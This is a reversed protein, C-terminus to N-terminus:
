RFDKGSQIDKYVIDFCTDGVIGPKQESDFLAISVTSIEEIPRSYVIRRSTPKKSKPRPLVKEKKPNYEQIGNKIKAKTKFNKVLLDLSMPKADMWYDKQEERPNNKWDNTYSIWIRMADKMKTRAKQWIDSSLDLARKTSTVPLKSADKSKFEVIGTIISYQFHFLPLDDGWGTLRSKDGILIARDNCFISWGSTLYPRDDDFDRDSVYEDETKSSNLGVTITITVNDDNYQLFYPSPGNEKIDMLLEINVAQLTFDNLVITLGYKIYLTFHTSITKKLDDIFSDLAFHRSVNPHLSSVIIKTGAEPLLNHSETKVIELPEWDPSSIWQPGIGVEFSDDSHKTRVISETGMKLISRKMGIGYIGISEIDDDRDKSEERGFRFAYKMAIDRSIGGCNDQITFRDKELILQITSKSFDNIKGQAKQRHAGDICNDILDLIADELSIDRTLMSVFFRKTPTAIAVDPSIQM